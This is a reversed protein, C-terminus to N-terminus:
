LFRDERVKNVRVFLYTLCDDIAEESDVTHHQMRKLCFPSDARHGVGVRHAVRVALNRENTSM